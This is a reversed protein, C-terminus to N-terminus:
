VAWYKSLSSCVELEKDKGIPDMQVRLVQFV